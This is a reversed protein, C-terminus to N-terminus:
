LAFLNTGSGCGVDLVRDTQGVTWQLLHTGIENYWGFDVDTPQWPVVSLDLQESM